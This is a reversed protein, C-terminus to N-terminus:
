SVPVKPIYRRLWSEGARVQNKNMWEGLSPVLTNLAISNEHLVGAAFLRKLDRMPYTIIENNGIFAIEERNFFDVNLEQGLDKLVRVSGDISCGSPSSTDESVALVVFRKHDISYSTQLPVQHATWQDCFKTLKESIVKVEGDNLSRNAQYIWARSSAPMKDISIYM